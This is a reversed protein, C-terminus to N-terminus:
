IAGWTTVKQVDIRIVVADDALMGRAYQPYKRRLM